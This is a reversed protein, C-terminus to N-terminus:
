DSAWITGQSKLSMSARPVGFGDLSPRNSAVPADNISAGLPPVLVLQVHLTCHVLVEHNTDDEIM